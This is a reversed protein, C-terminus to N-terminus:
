RRPWWGSASWRGPRTPRGTTARGVTPRGGDPTGGDPTGGGAPGRVPYFSVRWRRAPADAAAAPDRDAVALDLVPEGTELVRALLPDLAPALDPRVEAVRRGLHAAAPVRNSAALVANIHAYRRQRDYVAIGVPATALVAGFFAALEEAAARAAREAELLRAREVAQAAQGGLTLFFARGDAGLARPAAWGYSMVGVAVPAGDPGAVALPVTAVAQTGLADWVAAADPYRALLEARSEAWQPEGTRLCAAAPGPATLPFRAYRALVDPHLGRQRVIVAEDAGAPRLALMGTAAGTAAVGEAVVVAAVEDVTRAGALAATLAQLRETRARAAREADLLGAREEVDVVSGVYGLFEGAPGVRPEGADVARRFQGDARRLRYELRFPAGRATAELFVRGAEAADDPHVADLWGLGLGQALTQGTFALWARNLFSCAGDAETQWLMVPATDALHRFRAERERPAAEARGDRDTGGVADAADAGNAGATGRSAHAM